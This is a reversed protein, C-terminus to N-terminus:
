QLVSKCCALLHAQKCICVSVITIVTDCHCPWVGALVQLPEAYFYLATTQQQHGTYTLLLEPLQHTHNCTSIASRSSNAPACLACESAACLSRACRCFAAGQRYGRATIIPATSAACLVGLIVLLGRSPRLQSCSPRCFLCAADSDRSKTHVHHRSGDFLTCLRCPQM